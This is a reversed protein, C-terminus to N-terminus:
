ILFVQHLLHRRVSLAPPENFDLQPFSAHALLAARVPDHAACAFLKPLVPNHAVAKGATLFACHAVDCKSAPCDGPLQALPTGTSEIENRNAGHAVHGVVRQDAHVHHACCGLALHLLFAAVSVLNISARM